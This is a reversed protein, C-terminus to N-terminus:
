IIFQSICKAWAEPIFDDFRTGPFLHVKSIGYQGLAAALVQGTEGFVVAEVDGLVAALTLMELSAKNLKGQHHEVIGLIM